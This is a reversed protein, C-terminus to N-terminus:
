TVDEQVLIAVLQASLGGNIAILEDHDHVGCAPSASASRELDRQLVEVLAPVTATGLVDLNHDHAAILVLLAEFLSGVTHRPNSKGEVEVLLLYSGHDGASAVWCGANDVTGVASHNVWVSESLHM